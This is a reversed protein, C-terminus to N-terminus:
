KFAGSEIPSLHGQTDKSFILRFQKYIYHGSVSKARFNISVLYLNKDLGPQISANIPSYNKLTDPLEQLCLENAKSLAYQQQTSDLDKVVQPSFYVSAQHKSNNPTYFYGYKHETNKLPKEVPRVSTAYIAIGLLLILIPFGWEFKNIHKKDM